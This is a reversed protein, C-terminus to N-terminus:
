EDDRINCILCINYYNTSGSDVTDMEGSWDNYVESVNGCWERKEFWASKGNDFKHKCSAEKTQCYKKLKDLDNKATNLVEEQERILINIHKLEERYRKKELSM